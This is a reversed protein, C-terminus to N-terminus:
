YERKLAKRKTIEFCYDKLKTNNFSIYCKEITLPTADIIFKFVKLNDQTTNEKYNIITDIKANTESNFLEVIFDDIYLIESESYLNFIINKIIM